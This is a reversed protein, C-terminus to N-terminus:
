LCYTCTIFCTMCLLCKKKVAKELANDVVNEV